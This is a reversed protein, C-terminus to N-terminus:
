PVVGPPLLRRRRSTTAATLDADSEGPEKLGPWATTQRAALLFDKRLPHGEFGDPLLLPVLGPHGTFALGFMEATHREHWAAGAYTGTLSDVVPEAQPLRTRVVLGHRHRTSWLRVVVDFGEEQEDVATLLDFLDLGLADRLQTIAPIWRARPVDVTVLAYAAEARGQDGLLERARAALQDPTM